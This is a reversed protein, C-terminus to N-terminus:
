LLILRWWIQQMHWLRTPFTNILVLICKTCIPLPTCTMCHYILSFTVSLYNIVQGNALSICKIITELSEFDETSAFIASEFGYSLM